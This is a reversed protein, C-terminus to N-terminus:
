ILQEATTMDNGVVDSDIELKHTLMRQLLKVSLPYSVNAFMYLVEGSVTEAVPHNEYYQVVLGYLKVLDQKDVMHLIQQLTTFHKTSGNIRYLANIDGLPTPIVEWGVLASWVPSAEDDSDENVVVKIFTQADADLDLEIITSKPKTIRKQGLSKRRTRSSPPSSVAHSHLVEPMSPISAEISKQRKSSAKELVEIRDLPLTGPYIGRAR